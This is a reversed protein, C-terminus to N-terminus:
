INWWDFFSFERKELNHKFILDVLKMLNIGDINKENYQSLFIPKKLKEPLEPIGFPMKPEFFYFHKKNPQINNNSVIIEIFEKGAIGINPKLIKIEILYTLNKHNFTINYNM